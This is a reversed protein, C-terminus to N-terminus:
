SSRSGSPMLSKAANAGDVALVEFGGDADFDGVEGGAGEDFDLGDCVYCVFVSGDM